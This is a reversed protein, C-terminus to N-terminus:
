RNIAVGWSSKFWIKQNNFVPNLKFKNSGELDFFLGIGGGNRRWDSFGLCNKKNIIEYNDNGSKELFVSLANANGGGLSLSEARYSDNGEDDIFLGFAYDHGCGLSVGNTYYNDDGRYDHLLGFALHVGSGQSYQYARYQDHGNKDILAGIGLWYAVGQGYIDAIYKDDGAKDILFSAGGGFFPRDGSSFGQGLTLYHNDYRLLDLHKSKLSYDDNGKSDILYSFGYSESYAQSRSNALYSDNGQNDWLFSYGFSSASQGYDRAQYQDNGQKDLLFSFGFLAFCPGSASSQYIDDGAEDYIINTGFYSSNVGLNNKSLYLDDGALDIIYSNRGKLNEIQYQDNGAPDIILFYNGQYNDDQRSGIKIKGMKTEFEESVLSDPNNKLYNLLSLFTQYSNIGSSFLYKFEIKKIIQYLEKKIRFNVREQIRADLLTGLDDKKFFDQKKSTKKILGLKQGYHWNLIKKEKENLNILASDLLKQNSQNHDIFQKINIEKTLKNRELSFNSDLIDFNIKPFSHYLNAEKAALQMLYNPKQFLKSVLPLAQAKYSNLRLPIYFDNELSMAMKGLGYNILSDNDLVLKQDLLEENIYEYGNITSDAIQRSEISDLLNYKDKLKLIKINTAQYNKLKELLQPHKQLKRNLYFYATNSILQKEAKLKSLLFNFSGLNNASGIAAIQKWEEIDSRPQYDKLLSYNTDLSSNVLGELAAARIWNEQNQLFKALFIADENRKTYGLFYAAKGFSSREKKEVIERLYNSTLNPDTKKLLYRLAHFERPQKSTIKSVLFPIIKEKEALIKERASDVLYQHKIFSASAQIFLSDYKNLKSVEEEYLSSYDLAFLTAVLILKLAIIKKM